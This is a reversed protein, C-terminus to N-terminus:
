ILMLWGNGYIFIWKLPPHNKQGPYWTFQEHLSVQWQRLSLPLLEKCVVALKINVNAIQSLQTLKIVVENSLNNTIIHTNIGYLFLVCKDNSLIYLTEANHQTSLQKPSATKDM